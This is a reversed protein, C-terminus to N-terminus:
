DSGLVDKWYGRARDMHRRILDQAMDIDRREIADVLKKHDRASARGHERSAFVARRRQATMRYFANLVRVLVSNHSAGVLALHFDTDAEAINEGKRLQADTRELNARLKELDGEDRRVCALKVAIQELAARVEMTEAIEESTPTSGMDALFVITEFSAETSVRRLYIGSNPRSEVVRLTTLTALAERLANRGVGLKEALARESPLRDGPQLRRERLYALIARVIHNSTHEGTDPVVALDATMASM